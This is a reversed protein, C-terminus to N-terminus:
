AKQKQASKKNKSSRSIALQRHERNSQQAEKRLEAASEKASREMERMESRKDAHGQKELRKMIAKRQGQAKSIQKMALREEEMEEYELDDTREEYSEKDQKYNATAVRNASCREMVGVLDLGLGWKSLLGYAYVGWNNAFIEGQMRSNYSLNHFQGVVYQPHPMDYQSENIHSSIKGQRWLEYMVDAWGYRTSVEGIEGGDKVYLHSTWKKDWAYAPHDIDSVFAKTADHWHWSGGANSYVSIGPITVWEGTVGDTADSYKEADSAYSEWIPRGREPKTAGFWQDILTEMANYASDGSSGLDNRYNYLGGTADESEDSDLYGETDNYADDYSVRGTYQSFEWFRERDMGAAEWGHSEGEEFFATMRNQVSHQIELFFPFMALAHHNVYPNSQMIFDGIYPMMAEDDWTSTVPGFVETMMSWARERSEYMAMVLLALQEENLHQYSGDMVIQYYSKGALYPNTSLLTTVDEWDHGTAALMGGIFYAQNVTADIIGTQKTDPKGKIGIHNWESAEAVFDINSFYAGYGSGALRSADDFAGTRHQMGHVWVDDDRWTEFGDYEIGNDQVWAITDYNTVRGDGDNDTLANALSQDESNVSDDNNLDFSAFLDRLDQLAAADSLSVGYETFADYWEETVNTPGGRHDIARAAEDDDAAFKKCAYDLQELKPLFKMMELGFNALRNLNISSTYFNYLDPSEPSLAKRPKMAKLLNLSQVHAYKNGFM